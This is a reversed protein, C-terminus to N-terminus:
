LLCNTGASVSSEQQCVGFEDCTEHYLASLVSHM